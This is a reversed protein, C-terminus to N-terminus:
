PSRLLKFLTYASYLVLPTNIALVARSYWCSSDHVRRTAEFRELVLVLNVIHLVKTEPASLFLNNEGAM